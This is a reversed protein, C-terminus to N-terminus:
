VGAAKLKAEYEAEVIDIDIGEGRDLSDLAADLAALDAAALSSFVSARSRTQLMEALAALQEDPLRDLQAEITAIAEIRTM